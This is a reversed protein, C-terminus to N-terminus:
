PLPEIQPYVHILVFGTWRTSTAPARLEYFASGRSVIADSFYDGPEFVIGFIQGLREVLANSTTDLGGEATAPMKIKPGIGEFFTNLSVRQHSFDVTGYYPWNEDQMAEDTPKITVGVRGDQRPYPDGIDLNNIEVGPKLAEAVMLRRAAGSALALLQLSEAM